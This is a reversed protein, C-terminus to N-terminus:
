KVTELYQARVAMHLPTCGMRTKAWVDAGAQIFHKVREIQFLIYGDYTWLM